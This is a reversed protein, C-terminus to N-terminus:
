ELRRRCLRSAHEKTFHEQTNTLLLLALVTILITISLFEEFM